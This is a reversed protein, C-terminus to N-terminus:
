EGVEEGWKGWIEDFIDDKLGETFSKMRFAGFPPKKYRVQNVGEGDFKILGKVM